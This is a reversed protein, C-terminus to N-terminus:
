AFIGQRSKCIGDDQCGRTVEGNYYGIVTENEIVM